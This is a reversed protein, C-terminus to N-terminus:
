RYNYVDPRPDAIFGDKNPMEVAALTKANMEADAGIIKSRHLIYASVAYIEDATLSGPENFPMARRVYDFLTTAYPWYSEVTKKTKPTGISGRGGILAAGGAAGVGELNEGHCAACREAYVTEGQKPTGSGAPLGRGDPMADIDVAAIEAATPTTGFGFQGAGASGAAASLALAATAALTMAIMRKKSEDTLM